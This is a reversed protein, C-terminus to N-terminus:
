QYFFVLCFKVRPMQFCFCAVKEAPLLKPFSSLVVVVERPKFSFFFVRTTLEISPFLVVKVFDYSM